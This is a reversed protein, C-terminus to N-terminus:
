YARGGEGYLVADLIKKLLREINDLRKEMNNAPEPRRWIPTYPTPPMGEKADIRNWGPVSFTPEL